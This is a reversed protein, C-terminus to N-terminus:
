AKVLQLWAQINQMVKPSTHASVYVEIQTILIKKWFLSMVLAFSNKNITQLHKGNIVNYVLM